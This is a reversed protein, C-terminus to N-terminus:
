SAREFRRSPDFPIPESAHTLSAVLRRSDLSYIIVRAAAAASTIKRMREFADSNRNDLLFGDSMFLVLKRGPLHAMTKVYRELTALTRTTIMGSQQLIQSARKRVM